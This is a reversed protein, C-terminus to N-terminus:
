LSLHTHIYLNHFHRYLCVSPSFTTINRQHHRTTKLTIKLFILRKKHHCKCEKNIEGVRDGKLYQFKYVKIKLHCSEDCRGSLLGSVIEPVISTM